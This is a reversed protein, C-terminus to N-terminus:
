DFLCARISGGVFARAATRLASGSIERPRSGNPALPNAVWYKGDQYAVGIQHGGKFGYQLSSPLSGSRVALSATWGAKLLSIFGNWDYSSYRRKRHNPWAGQAGRMVHDLTGGTPGPRDPNKAWARFQPVTPKFTEGAAIAAWVTAV